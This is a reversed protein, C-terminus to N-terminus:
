ARVSARQKNVEYAHIKPVASAVTEGDIELPLIDQRELAKQAGPGIAEAVVYRCDALASVAAAMAGEDHFGHQCPSKAARREIEAFSGDEQVEVIVFGDSHGFHRDIHVGDASAAAIRYAM